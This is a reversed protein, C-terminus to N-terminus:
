FAKTNASQDVQISECVVSKDILKEIANLYEESRDLYFALSKSFTRGVIGDIFMQSIDREMYLIKQAKILIKREDPDMRCLLKKFATRARPQYMWFYLLDLVNIILINIYHRAEESASKLWDAPNDLLEFVDKDPILIELRAYVDLFQRIKQQYDSMRHRINRERDITGEIFGAVVDSATKSIVAAWQQLTEAIGVAGCLGM